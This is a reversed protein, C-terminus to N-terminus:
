LTVQSVSVKKEYNSHPSKHYVSNRKMIVILHSTICQSSHSVIQSSVQLLIM